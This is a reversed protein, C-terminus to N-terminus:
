EWIGAIRHGCSACCGCNLGENKTHFGFRRILVTKCADCLTATEIPVNGPYVFHIGADVALEAAHEVNEISTPPVDLADCAPHFASLHLPVDKGLHDVIWQYEQKLMEDDDNIGPILLTTLELWFGKKNHMREITELIPQLKANAWSRYFSESFGKLDINAADFPELFWELANTQIFGATVLVNKLGANKAVCAIDYAYEAWVIPENYTYAIMRCGAQIAADVIRDASIKTGMSAYHARSLGDNQCGRCRLNCGLTGLSFIREGPLFHNLPKKEIPDIHTAVPEGYVLSRIGNKEAKRVHCIGVQGENLVCAHPCLGCQWRGDELKHSLAIRDM